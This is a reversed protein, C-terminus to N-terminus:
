ATQQNTQRSFCAGYSSRSPTSEVTPSGIVAIMETQIEYDFSGAPQAFPTQVVFLEREIICYYHPHNEPCNSHECSPATSSGIVGLKVLLLAQSLRVASSMEVRKREISGSVTALSVNDTEGWNRRGRLERGTRVGNRNDIGDQGTGGVGNRNDIRCCRKMSEAAGSGKWSARRRHRACRWSAM